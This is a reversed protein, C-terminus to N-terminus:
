KMLEDTLQLIQPAIKKREKKIIRNYIPYALSVLLIGIVGVLIGWVMAMAGLPAGLETMALSMGSGMILAGLIGFVLSVTTAKKTVAADLRRLEAMKDGTQEPAEYKKRIAKIEAQEKASYTYHFAEKNEM